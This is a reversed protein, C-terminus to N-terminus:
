FTWRVGLGGFFQDPDIGIFDFWDSLDSDVITSYAAFATLTTGGQLSYDMDGRLTLDALGAEEIGYNWRSQNEGMWGLGLRRGESSTTTTSSRTIKGPCWRTTVYQGGTRKNYTMEWAVDVRRGVLQEDIVPLTARVRAPQRARPERPRKRYEDAEARVDDEKRLQESEIEARQLTPSGLQPLKRRHM